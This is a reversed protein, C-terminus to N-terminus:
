REGEYAIWWYPAIYYLVDSFASNPTGAAQSKFVDWMCGQPYDVTKGDPGIARIIMGDRFYLRYEAGKGDYAFAFVLTCEPLSAFEPLVSKGLAPNLHYAEITFGDLGYVAKVLASGSYYFTERVEETQNQGYSYRESADETEKGYDAIHGNTYAYTDRIFQIDAEMGTGWEASPIGDGSLYRELNQDTVPMTQYQVSSDLIEEAEKLRQAYDPTDPIQTEDPYGFDRVTKVSKGDFQYLSGWVGMQYRMAVFQSKEPIVAWEPAGLDEIHLGDSYYLLYSVTTASNEGEVFLFVECIGDSNLDVVQFGRNGTPSRLSADQKLAARYAAVASRNKAQNETSGAAAMATTCMSLAAVIGIGAAAIRKMRKSRM